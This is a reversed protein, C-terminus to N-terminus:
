PDPTNILAKRATSFSMDLGACEQEACLDRSSYKGSAWIERIKNQKDRSGGPQDHRANAANRATRERWESTGIELDAKQNKIKSWGDTKNATGAWM